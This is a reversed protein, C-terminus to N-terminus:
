DIGYDYRKLFTTYRQGTPRLRVVVPRSKILGM